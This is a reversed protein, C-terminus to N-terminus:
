VVPVKKVRFSSWLESQLVYVGKFKSANKKKEIKEGTM